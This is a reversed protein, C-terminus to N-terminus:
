DRTSVELMVVLLHTLKIRNKRGSVGDGARSWGLMGTRLFELVKRRSFCGEVVPRDVKGRSCVCDISKDRVGCLDRGDRGRSWLSELRRRSNNERVGIVRKDFRWGWSEVLPEGGAHIFACLAVAHECAFLSIARSTFMLSTFKAEIRCLNYTKYYM